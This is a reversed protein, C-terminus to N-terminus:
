SIMTQNCVNGVVVSETGRVGIGRSRGVVVVVFLVVNIGETGHKSLSAEGSVEDDVLTTGSYLVDTVFPTVPAVDLVGTETDM